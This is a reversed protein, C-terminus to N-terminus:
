ISRTVSGLDVFAQPKMVVFPREDFRLGGHGDHEVVQVKGMGYGMPGRDYYHVQLRYSAAREAASGRASFLEPGYGTTVDAVLSGGSALRPNGYFAHSSDDFVHLDVDNTDTEWNLVFRISPDTALKAGADELRAQIVERKQPQAAIWAAAILGLDERLVETVGAFRGGPYRADLAERLVTFAKAHDGIKTLAFAYLRHSTPHDPRQERAVRYSDIALALAAPVSRGQRQAVRELRAAAFRRVDARSPFLDILSGYARAAWRPQGMAEFSEGLAVLALSDGPTKHHWRQAEALAARHDRRAIADMVIKMRGDYPDAPQPRERGKEADRSDPMRPATRNAEMSTPEGSSEFPTFLFPYSVTVVGGEPQPFSLAAVAQVMCSAFRVDGIDDQLVSTGSVAGERGIVFRVAVRGMANPKRELASQYCRRFRGFNQRVIRQIVEPPLRGSVMTAGMRVQPARARHSSGLRGHGSGFGQGSGTGAGRGITGVQGLGPQGTFSGSASEARGGGGEGVGSLGLGGAGFSEGIDNGWAALPAAMAYQRAEALAEAKGWAGSSEAPTTGRPRHTALQGREVTLVESLARRDIGYRDYDAQRELVLLSTYPSMVRHRTSLTVIERALAPSKGERREREMLSAIKARAWSREVLPPSGPKILAAITEDGLTVDVTGPGTGEAYILV